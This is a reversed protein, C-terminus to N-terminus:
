LNWEYERNGLFPSFAKVVGLYLLHFFIHRALGPLVWRYIILSFSTVIFFCSLLLIPLYTEIQQCPVTKLQEHLVGSYQSVAKIHECILDM